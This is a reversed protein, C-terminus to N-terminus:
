PGCDLPQVRGSSCRRPQVGSVMRTRCPLGARWLKRRSSAPQKVSKHGVPMNRPFSM